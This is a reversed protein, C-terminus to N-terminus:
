HNISDPSDPSSFDDIGADAAATSAVGIMGGATSDQVTVSALATAAVFLPDVSATVTAALDEIDVTSVLRSVVAVIMIATATATTVTGTAETNIGPARKM